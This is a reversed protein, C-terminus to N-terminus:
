VTFYPTRVTLGQAQGVESQSQSRGTVGTKVHSVAHHPDTVSVLNSASTVDISSPEDVASANAYASGDHNPPQAFEIILKDYHGFVGFTVGTSLWSPVHLTVTARPEIWGSM